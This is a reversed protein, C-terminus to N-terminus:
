LFCPFNEGFMKDPISVFVKNCRMFRKLSIYMLMKQKVFNIYFDVYILFKMKDRYIQFSCTSVPIFFVTDM